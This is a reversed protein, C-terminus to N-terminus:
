DVPVHLDMGRAESSPIYLAEHGSAISSRKTKHSYNQNAGFKGFHDVSNLEIIIFM